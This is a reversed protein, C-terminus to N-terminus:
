PNINNKRSDYLAQVAIGFSSTDSFDGNMYKSYDTEVDIHSEESINQYNDFLFGLGL